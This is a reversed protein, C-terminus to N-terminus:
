LTDLDLEDPFVKPEGKTISKVNAKIKFQSTPTPKVSVNLLDLEDIEVNSLEESAVLKTTTGTTKSILFSM